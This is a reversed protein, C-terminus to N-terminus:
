DFARRDVEEGSLTLLDLPVNIFWDHGQHRHPALVIRYALETVNAGEDWECLHVIFPLPSGRRWEGFRRDPNNTYGIKVYNGEYILIYFYAGKPKPLGHRKRDAKKNIASIREPNNTRYKRMREANGDKRLEYSRKNRAKVKDPNRAEWRQSPTLGDANGYVRNHEHKGM